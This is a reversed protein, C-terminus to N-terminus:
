QATVNVNFIGVNNVESQEAIQSDNDARAQLTYTGPTSFTLAINLVVSQGASLDGVVGLQQTSGGPSVSIINNFQTTARQGTNTILVSFTASVSTQGSAIQLDSPGSINSIVLDALGPTATIVVSTPSPPTNTWTATPNIPPTPSAPIPPISVNQCNGYVTIVNNSVWGTATQFRVQWWSNDGLRGTIPATAGSGLVLIVNYNIGPGTRLNVSSNTVVRCTPDNPNIVPGQTPVVVPITTNTSTAAVRRVNVTIAAPASTINGRYAIVQLNLAGEVTPTYDLLVNMNRDGGTSQSSVTKVIAGNALLQVRTIGVSDTATVNVIVAQNLAADSGNAPSVLTVTPQGGGATTPTPATQAGGSSLNCGALVAIVLLLVFGFRFRM